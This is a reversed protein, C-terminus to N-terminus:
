GQKNGNNDLFRKMEGFIEQDELNNHGKGEYIILKKPENALLILKESHSHPIVGDNTGHVILVPTNVQSIYKENSFNDKVLYKLPVYWYIEQARDVINTYPTILMLGHFHYETAIQTAVGSGLSEGVLIIDDTKYGQEKAFEVASRATNLISEMNPSGESKGFGSYSPAIFGYGLSILERFKSARYSLNYANGHLYIVMRHGAKPTHYWVQIQTGDKNKIMLDKTQYVGYDEVSAINKDPFYQLSRQNFYLYAIGSLYFIIFLLILKLFNKRM